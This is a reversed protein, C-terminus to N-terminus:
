ILTNKYNAQIAEDISILIAQEDAIAHGVIIRDFPDRTWALARSAYCAQPFSQELVSVGLQRLLELTHDVSAKLRGVEKLLELELVVIPSIVVPSYNLLRRAHNSLTLKDRSALKIAM